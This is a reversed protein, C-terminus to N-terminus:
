RRCKLHGTYYHNFNIRNSLSVFKESNDKEATEHVADLLNIIQQTFVSDFQAVKEAFTMTRM